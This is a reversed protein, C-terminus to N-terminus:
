QQVEVEFPKNNNKNEEEKLEKNLLIQDVKTMYDHIKSDIETWSENFLSGSIVRKAMDLKPEKHLPNNCLDITKAKEKTEMSCWSECWLWEQPLSYIPVQDQIFNPLDQDLNSLSNPDQALRHYVSRLTDGVAKRRFVQLDVVYLASIHYPKGHLHDRWFGQTWFMYGTTDKNSTCLPTYAYPRGHLNMTWLELLDSRTVQDADVYIIKKVDLPFLVDLFLIKYGWIIRQKEKEEHLWYPWKYTVFSYEFGFHEAYYPLTKKFYPSIFNEVIWFKVKRSTNKSVSYMMIRLFREYLHGSAISFVNIVEEEALVSSHKNIKNKINNWLSSSKPEENIDETLSENEHGQNKVVRVQSIGELFDYVYIKQSSLTHDLPNEKNKIATHDVISYLESHRGPSIILNYIGPNARLQFYGNNQMVLTDTLKNGHIDTLELQLSNPPQLNVDYCQGDMLLNYIYYEVDVIGQTSVLVDEKLRLNDLDYIASKAQINWKFPGEIAMTYVYQSPIHEYSISLSSTTTTDLFRYFRKQPLDEDNGTPIFVIEIYINEKFLSRLLLVLSSVRQSTESLPNLFATFTLFSSPNGYHIYTSYQQISTDIMSPKYDQYLALYLSFISTYTDADCHLINYIDQNRTAESKLILDFYESKFANLGDMIRGNLVVTIGTLGPFKQIWQNNMYLNDESYDRPISFSDLQIDDVEVIEKLLLYMDDKSLTKTMSQVHIDNLFRSIYDIFDDQDIHEYLSHLINLLYFGEENTSKNIFLLRSRKLNIFGTLINLIDNYDHNMDIIFLYTYPPLDKENMWDASYFYPSNKILYDPSNTKEPTSSLLTITGQEIYPQFISPLYVPIVTSEKYLYPFITDLSTIQQNQIGSSIIQIEEWLLRMTQQINSLEQIRGNIIESQLTLGYKLVYEAMDQIQSTYTNDNYAKLLDNELTKSKSVLSLAFIIDKITKIEEKSYYELYQCFSNKGLKKNAFIFSQILLSDTLPSSLTIQGNNLLSPSLLKFQSIITSSSFLLSISIPLSNQYIQLAVPIIQKNMSDNIDLLLIRNLYNYRVQPFGYSPYLFPEITRYFRNYQKDKEINNLRILCNDQSVDEPLRYVKREEVNWKSAISNLENITTESLKLYDLKSLSNVQSQISNFLDFINYHPTNINIRVGNMYTSDIYNSLSEKVEDFSHMFSSLLPVHTLSSARAPFNQSLDQFTKLPDESFLIRETTKYGIDKMKTKDIEQNNYNNKTMIRKYKRLKKTEKPYLKMLKDFDIDEIQKINMNLEIDKEEEKEEEEEKDIFDNDMTKNNQLSELRDDITKYEMNKINLAIGYGRIYSDSTLINKHIHRYLFQIKNTSLLSQIERYWNVFELSGLSTYLVIINNNITETEPYIHDFSNVEEKYLIDTNLYNKILNPNCVAHGNVVAFSHGEQCANEVTKSVESFMEVTAIYTRMQLHFELLTKQFDSLMSDSCLSVISKIESESQITNDKSNEYVSNVFSWFYNNSIKSMYESAEMLPSYLSTKYPTGLKIDVKPNLKANVALILM